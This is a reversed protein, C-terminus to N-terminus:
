ILAQRLTGFTKPSCIKLGLFAFSQPGTWWARWWSSFYFAGSEVALM